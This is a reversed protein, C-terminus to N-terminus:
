RGAASREREALAWTSALDPADAEIGPRRSTAGAPLRLVVTSGQGPRADIEM